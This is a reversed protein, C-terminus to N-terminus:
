EFPNTFVDEAELDDVDDMDDALDDDMTDHMVEDDYTEFWAFPDLAHSFREMLFSIATRLTANKLSSHWALFLNDVLIYEIWTMMFDREKGPGINDYMKLGYVLVFYCFTAWSAMFAAKASWSILFAKHVRRHETDLFADTIGNAVALLAERAAKRARAVGTVKVSAKVAQGAMRFKAAARPNKRGGPPPPPGSPPRPVRTSGTQRHVRNAMRLVNNAAGLIGRPEPAAPPPPPLPGLGPGAPRRAPGPAEWNIGALNIGGNTDPVAYNVRVVDTATPSPLAFAHDHASPLDLSAVPSGTSRETSGQEYPIFALARSLDLSAVPSGTDRTRRRLVASARAHEGPVPLEVGRLWDNRLHAPPLSTESSLVTSVWTASESVPGGMRAKGKFASGGEIKSRREDTERCKERSSDRSKRAGGEAAAAAAPAAAAEEEAMALRRELSAKRAQAAQRKEKANARVMGSGAMAGKTPGAKLGRTSPGGQLSSGRQSDNSMTSIRSPRPSENSMMKLMSESSSSEMKRPTTSLGPSDVGEVPGAGEGEPEAEGGPAFDDLFKVSLYTVTSKDVVKRVRRRIKQFLSQEHWRTPVNATNAFTVAFTLGKDVPLVVAFIVLVTIFMHFFEGPIPFADCVYDGGKGLAPDAMLDRCREYEKFECPADPTPVAGAELGCNVHVAASQCCSVAREAQLWIAVTLSGLWMAVLTLVRDARGFASSIPAFACRVVPHTHMASRLVTRFFDYVVEARDKVTKLPKMRIMIERIVNVQATKWQLVQDYARQRMLPMMKERLLPSEAVQRAVYAHARSVVTEEATHEFSVLGNSDVKRIQTSEQMVFDRQEGELYGLALLTCWLEVTDIDDSTGGEAELQTLEPPVSRELAWEDFEKPHPRIFDGSKEDRAFLAKALDPSMSFSGDKRQLYILNWMRSRNYWGSKPFSLMVKFFNFHDTFTLGKIKGPPFLKTARTTQELLIAPKVMNRLGLIALMIATGIMRDEVDELPGDIEGEEGETPVKVHIPPMKFDEEDMEARATSASAGRMLFSSRGSILSRNNGRPAGAAELGGSMRRLFSSTRPSGSADPSGSEAPRRFSRLFSASSTFTRNLYAKESQLAHPPVASMSVSPRAGGSDETADVYTRFLTRKIKSLVGGQAPPASPLDDHIRLALADSAGTEPTTPQIPPPPNGFPTGPTSVNKDGLSSTSADRPFDGGDDHAGSGDSNHGGRGVRQSRSLGSTGASSGSVTGEAVPGAGSAGYPVFRLHLQSPHPMRGLWTEAVPGAGGKEELPAPCISGVKHVPVIGAGEDPGGGRDELPMDELVAPAGQLASGLAVQRHWLRQQGIEAPLGKMGSKAALLESYLGSGRARSALKDFKVKLMARVTTAERKGNALTGEDVVVTAKIVELPLALRIRNYYCGMIAVNAPGPGTIIPVEGLTEDRHTGILQHFPWTWVGCVEQFAHRPGRLRELFARRARVVSYHALGALLLGALCIAAVIGILEKVRWAEEFSLSAEERSAVSIRTKPFTLSVKFDTLHTCACEQTGSFECGPGRFSQADVHWWCQFPNTTSSMNCLSGERADRFVRFEDKDYSAMCGAMLEHEVHWSRHWYTQNYDQADLKFGTVWTVAAGPPHPNPLTFCGTTSYAGEGGSTEDWWGCLAILRNPNVKVGGESSNSMLIAKKAGEVASAELPISFYIPRLLGSLPMATGEGGSVLSLSVVGSLPASFAPATANTANQGAAQTRNAEERLAAGELLDDFNTSTLVVGVDVRDLAGAGACNGSYGATADAGAGETVDAPSAGAEGEKMVPDASPPDQERPPPNAAPDQTRTGPAPTGGEQLLRRAGGCGGLVDGASSAALKAAAESPVSFSVSSSTAIDFLAGLSKTSQLPDVYSRQVKVGVNEGSSESAPEGPIMSGIQVGAMRDLLSRINSRTAVTRAAGGTDAAGGEPVASASASATAASSYSAVAGAVGDATSLIGMAADETLELSNAKGFPSIIDGLIRGSISLASDQTEEDIEDPAACIRSVMQSARALSGTSSVTLDMASRSTALLRGRQVKRSALEDAGLGAEFSRRLSTAALLRRGGGGEEGDAPAALSNLLATTGSILQQTIDTDGNALAENAAGAKDDVFGSVAAEDEMVPWSVVTAMYVPASEAGMADRARLVITVSFGHEELGAPLFVGAIDPVPQYDTLPVEEETGVISYSWKFSLPRDDDDWAAKSTALSFPTELAIGGGSPDATIASDEGGVLVPAQNVNVMIQAQAAGNNDQVQLVFTYTGGPVLANPALLLMDSNRPTLAIAPDDLDLDGRGLENWRLRLSAPKISTVSASIILRQNSNVKSTSLPTVRVIPPAGKEVILQTSTSAQRSDKSVTLFFSYTKGGAQQSGGSLQTAFSVENKLVLPTVGDPGYCPNGSQDCRWAYTFESDEADPDISLLADIAIPNDEGAVGGGGAIVPVLPSSKVAFSEEAVACLLFNGALCVQVKITYTGTGSPLSKKPIFVDKSNAKTINLLDPSDLQMKFAPDSSELSWQWKYGGKPNCGDEMAVMEAFARFDVARKAVGDVLTTDKIWVSVECMSCSTGDGQFGPPCCFEPGGDGPGVCCTHDRGDGSAEVDFGSVDACPVTFAGDNSVFCPKDACGNIDTCSSDGSGSFGPSPCDGCSSGLPTNTCNSLADCGGNSEACTTEPKCGILGDGRFGSPCSSCVFSGESNECTTQTDCPCGEEFALLRRGGGGTCLACEDIDMCGTDGKADGAYGAPCPNNGGETGGGCIFGIKPAAEDKCAVGPFCPKVACASSPECGTTGVGSGKYGVPCNGCVSESGDGEPDVEGFPVDFCSVVLTGSEDAWCPSSACGDVEVCGEPGQADGATGVPCPTCVHGEYPEEDAPVDTCTSLPSCPDNACGDINECGTEGTGSYGLPCPGCESAGNEFACTVREDCGGNNTECGSIRTCGALGTGRFGDPCKSCSFDGMGNTCTTEPDCPSSACEDVDECDEKTGNGFYGNPCRNCEVGDEVGLCPFGCQYLDLPPKEDVCEVGPFCPDNKCGDIEECPDGEYGPACSTEVEGGNVDIELVIGGESNGIM